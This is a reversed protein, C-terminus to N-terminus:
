AAPRRESAKPLADSETGTREGLWLEQRGPSKEPYILAGDPALSLNFHTPEYGALEGLEEERGSALDRKWIRPPSFRLSYLTRADASLHPYWGKGIPQCRSDDLPCLLITRDSESTGYVAQGDATWDPGVLLAALARSQGSALDHLRTEIAKGDQRRLYVLTRGDPSPMSNNERMWHWGEILLRDGQGDSGIRRLAREPAERYYLLANGGDTWRPHVNLVREGHTLQEVERSAIELLYLHEAKPARSFFAVRRGDPSLRPSTIPRRQQLLVSLTADAPDRRVLRWSNRTNTYVLRRGDASLTPDTDEGSGSTVPHPEGGAAAVRWLTTSGAHDSAFLISRGDGSWVPAGAPTFELETIQLAAGSAVDIRWLDGYPREPLPWYAVLQTGDPSFTARGDYGFYTAALAEIPRPDSGDGRSLWLRLERVFVLRDGAPSLDAHDGRDVLRHPHGGLPPVEWIGEGRRSFVIRDGARAWRPAFAAAEGRTVQIADGGAWSRVWIQAVGAADETVFAISSGDPALTPERHSGPFDSFLRFQFSPADSAGSQAARDPARVLIAVGVALAAAALAGVTYALRRSSRPAVAGTGFAAALEDLLEEASAPRSRPDRALLHALIPDWRPSLGRRRHSPLDPTDRLLSTFIELPSDGAFPRSGTLEEYLICGLAFLDTRLDVPLGRAQEPSMYAPTGLITGDATRESDAITALQALQAPDTPAVRKALGFDLIKLRDGSAVIVNAPKLDRHVVGARHATALAEALQRAHGLAQEETLPGSALLDALSRGEVLEMAIFDVDDESGVEYITVIGPHNLASAARAETLFRARQGDDAAIPPLTKIAVPRQLRTDLARYVLGMGGSGLEEYLEFHSLRRPTM